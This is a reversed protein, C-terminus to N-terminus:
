KGGTWLTAPFDTRELGEKVCQEMTSAEQRRNMRRLLGAYDQLNRLSSPHVPGLRKETIIRTRQFDAEAEIYRRQATLARARRNLCIGVKTHEPGMAAELIALAQGFTANSKNFQLQDAYMTALFCLTEGLKPDTPAIRELIARARLLLAEAERFERQFSKLDGLSLLLVAVDPHYPGSVDEAIALSRRWTSEALRVRGTARYINALDNLTLAVGRGAATVRGEEDALIERLLVEAQKM